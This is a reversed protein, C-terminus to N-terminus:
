TSKRRCFNLNCFQQTPPASNRMWPHAATATKKHKPTAIAPKALLASSGLGTSRESSLTDSVGGGPM